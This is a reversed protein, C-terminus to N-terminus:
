EGEGVDGGEVEGVDGAEREVDGVGVEGGEGVGEVEGM